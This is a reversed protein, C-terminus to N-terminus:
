EYYTDYYGAAKENTYPGINFKYLLSKKITKSM